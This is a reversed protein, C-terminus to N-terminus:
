TNAATHANQRFAMKWSFLTQVSASKGRSLEFITQPSPQVSLNSSSSINNDGDLLELGIKIDENDDAQKGGNNTDLSTANDKTDGIVSHKELRAHGLEKAHTRL